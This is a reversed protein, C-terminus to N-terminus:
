RFLQSPPIKKQAELAAAKEAAERKKAEKELRKKEELALKAEREKM